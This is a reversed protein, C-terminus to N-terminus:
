WRWIEKYTGDIDRATVPGFYRSDFSLATDGLVLLEGAALRRCGQWVPLPAGQRDRDLATAAGRPWTVTAASRCVLEGPGAAVRKLLRAGSPTGRRALYARAPAPPTLAVIAGAAPATATRLYVGRPVSPTENVLWPAPAAKSLAAAGALATGAALLLLIPPATM